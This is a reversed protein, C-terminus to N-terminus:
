QAPAPEAAAADKGNCQIHRECTGTTERRCVTSVAEGTPCASPAIPPEAGCDTPACEASTASGSGPGTTTPKSSGCAILLGFWAMAMFKTM